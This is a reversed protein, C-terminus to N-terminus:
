GTTKMGAAIGNITDLVARRIPEFNAHNADLQRLERMSVVQIFNLPDVYPNRREISHKIIPSNSLIEAQDLVTCIMATARAHETKIEHFINERLTTDTVLEAYLAAIGMDAKALDLQVNEVVTSFFLWDTYMQRLTALGAPKEDCFTKLAHGVGYWSPVIARSQMWSFIWPIARIDDFGGAESRKTPRSSIPLSALERMPTAQRWYDLFGPTEYVFKRFAARSTESLFEMAALWSDEVKGNAPTGVAMLVASLTQHLHRRAIEENSYRYAVVEGQETIKIRGSTPPQSLIARNTPGGGRGISGGRGHFLELAIDHEACVAALSNQANYLTWNSCLYGGDKGSDSYGLMIQQRENRAALHHQYISNEFLLKMVDPAAKLDEITEFLPVIDVDNQVGVETALLLMALVDSPAESHSAIVSDIVAKGYQQHAHAIMRWTRIIRNTVASFHPEIPFIPRPNTIERCLIRQKEIEPLDAYNAAIGYYAFIEHLATLHLRADERIDLPVLHLGFLQVKQILRQLTGKAVYCGRNQRLSEQILLLDGLFENGTPYEDAELRERIIRLKQRYFEGPYTRALTGDPDSVSQQVLTSIGVEDISQTLHMYLEQVEAVYVDRAAQRLMRLTQLTVDATVNPNGDRDGGVWSAYRLLLPLRSWDEDPYFRHLASRLDDYINVVVEMIINTIFYLGYNVEEVVTTQTARNPRTQWLEEIKEMITAELANQERPLLQHRDHLAMIDAIRQLKFLVHKRKAESPHATLVLRLSLTEIVARVDHATKGAQHLAEISAEISERLNHNAERERLVRIRQLDEAINILQFYNGFAKILIQRQSLGLTSITTALRLDADTDGTRRAKADARIAEVLDLAEDGHQEVIIKGLLAGLYKIDASLPPPTSKNDPM